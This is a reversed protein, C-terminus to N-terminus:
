SRAVDLARRFQRYSMLEANVPRVVHDTAVRSVTGLLAREVPEIAQRAAHAGLADAGLVLAGLGGAGLGLLVAGAVTAAPGSTMALLLAGAVLLVALVGRAPGLLDVWGPAEAPPPAALGVDLRDCAATLDSTAARRVPEGWGGTLHRGLNDALERVATGAAARDVPIAAGPARRPRSEEAPGPLPWRARGRVDSRVARAVEEVVEPVGAAEALRQQLQGAWLEPVTAPADGAARELDATVTALDARVRLAVHRKEEVRRGIAARLEPLGTGERASTAVVPPNRIGDAAIVRAVDRLMPGRREEPVTDIHNLVALMVERHRAHPQLMRHHLASDAYKQPDVVWVLLDALAVVREAEEHHATELSDHDPLDLLVLGDPLRSASAPAAAPRRHRRSQPVELWDLLAEVDGDGCVLATTSSTTPREPGSTSLASGALANFLSSKGSGTAGALAVVTHDTSVHLRGRAREVTTTATDCVDDPLRGRAAAVATALADVRTLLEAHHAGSLPPPRFAAGLGRGVM